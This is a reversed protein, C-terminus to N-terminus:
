TEVNAVTPRGEAIAILRAITGTVAEVVSSINAVSGWSATMARLALANILM